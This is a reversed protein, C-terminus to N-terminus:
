PHYIALGVAAEVALRAASKAVSSPIFVVDDPQLHLDPSKSALIKKLLLPTEEQKGDTTRILKAENLKATPNAGQAMALAKLVTMSGHEMVFGGPLKVDGVVYVIGAKAVLITDGPFVEINGETSGQVDNGLEVTV